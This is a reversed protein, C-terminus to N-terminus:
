FIGFLYIFFQYLVISNFVLRKQTKCFFHFCLLCIVFFMFVILWNFVFVIFCWAPVFVMVSSHIMSLFCLWLDFMKRTMCSRIGYCVVDSIIFSLSRSLLSVFLEVPSTLWIFFSVELFIHFFCVRYSQCLNVQTLKGKITWIFGLGWALSM